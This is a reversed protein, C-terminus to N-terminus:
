NRESLIKIPEYRTIRGLSTLGALTALGLSVAAIQGVTGPTLAVALDALPEADPDAQNAGGMPGMQMGMGGGTGQAEAAAAAEEAAQIQGALLVDTVPQAVLSGVALGLLMCAATVALIESWLGLGVASKKMGMARLVGIEYKRERIAISSLLAIIVGGFVLVVIMFTVSVSKLGEVPGVIANYTASDTTVDFVDALGEARVEETFADLLDPDELYFTAAVQMGQMGAVYNSLVTDYTTLIENRRNTFANQQPSTGYEDTLDDYTGVVTVDYEIPELAGEDINRLEGALHLTDGVSLDNLEALETSVLAEGDADPMEGEALARSGDDFEALKNGQLSATFSMPESEFMSEGPGGGGMTMMGSGGGLDAAVPTLGEPVVGTSATFDADALHESEGFALYQDADITPMVMRVMGDESEAMAEERVKEMDPVFTVEASFREKYDDIISTATSSIMLAVVSAAIVVLIIAGLLANRGKHRWVNALANNLIYM